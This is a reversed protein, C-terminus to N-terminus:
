VLEDRIEALSPFYQLDLEFMALIMRRKSPSLRAARVKRYNLSMWELDTSHVLDLDNIDLYDYLFPDHRNYGNPRM